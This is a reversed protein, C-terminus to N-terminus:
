KGTEGQVNQAQFGIGQLLMSLEYLPLGVINSYSGNICRIFQAAQGQIAYGGAKGQWEGSDLYNNIETETLKKFIVRSSVLRLHTRGQYALCLGSHVRHARGSLLNLCDRTEDITEAKPLIRRGVCVVTDAALVLTEPGAVAAAVQAKSQALRKALATPKEGALPTEDIDTPHIHDAQIGIQALLERRRPSASALWLAPKNTVIPLGAKPSTM